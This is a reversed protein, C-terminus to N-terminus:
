PTIHVKTSAANAHITSVVTFIMTERKNRKTYKNHKKYSLKSKSSTSESPVTCTPRGPPSTFRATYTKKKKKKQDNRSQKDDYMAAEQFLVSPRAPNRVTVLQYCIESGPTIPIQQFREHSQRNQTRQTCSYRTSRPLVHRQLAKGTNTNKKKKKETITTQHEQNITCRAGM